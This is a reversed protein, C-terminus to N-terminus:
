EMEEGTVDELIIFDGPDLGADHLLKRVEPETRATPHHLIADHFGLQATWGAAELKDLAEAAKELRAGLRGALARLQPGHLPRGEELEQGPAGFLPLSVNVGM